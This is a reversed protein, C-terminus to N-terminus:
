DSAINLAERLAEHAPEYGGASAHAQGLVALLRARGPSVEAELYALGRRATETAEQLRGAWVFVATLETCSRAIMERDGSTIYIELAEHLNIFAADWRELGREAIALDALLGAREMVDVDALHSLASRYSRSVEEFAAADLAAKAALMLHHILRRKDAFPGAKLLHDAIDGARENAADPYLREIADAVGAHLRQQRPDSIGALLTQRVLEHGFTFPREPGEASPVIIGMQQAKEIVTFLEDVDIQSIGALMQFNFSRGIVAAAALVRSENEDLRELRRGIVLRVTEPVDIEEIKTDTRFRGAADFVKGEEVLHRYLEEVFFPNGQSEDFILSVLSEPAQSKSL